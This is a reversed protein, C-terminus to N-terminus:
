KVKDNLCYAFFKSLGLLIDITAQIDIVECTIDDFIESIEGSREEDQHFIPLLSENTISSYGTKNKKLKRRFLSRYIKTLIGKQSIRAVFIFFGSPAGLLIAM